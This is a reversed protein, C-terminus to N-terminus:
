HPTSSKSSDQQAAPIFLKRTKANMCSEQQPVESCKVNFYLETSNNVKRWDYVQVKVVYIVLNLYSNVNVPRSDLAQAKKSEILVAGPM